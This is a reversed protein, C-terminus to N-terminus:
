DVWAHTDANIMWTGLNYNRSDPDAVFVMARTPEPVSDIKSIARTNGNWVSLVGGATFGNMGDAKSYSDYAWHSGPKRFKFRLDGPCHYSEFANCYKWLPGRSFGKQVAQVAKDRTMGSSIDPSPGPWYGGGNMDLSLWRTGDYYAFKSGSMTGNNDDAYM